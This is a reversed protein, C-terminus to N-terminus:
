QAVKIKDRIEELLKTQKAREEPVVAMAEEARKMTELIEKATATNEKSCNGNERLTILQEQHTDSVAKMFSDSEEVSHNLNDLSKNIGEIATAM